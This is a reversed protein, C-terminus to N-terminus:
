KKGSSFFPHVVKDGPKIGLAQARGGILEIVGTVPVASSIATLDQPIANAHVVRITGDAGVFLMDLPILTNKMWFMVVGNNDMEFLMGHDPDMKERYMLGIERTKPTDAIEVEFSHKTGDKSIVSLKETRMAAGANNISYLCFLGLFGAVAISLVVKM